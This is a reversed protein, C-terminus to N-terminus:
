AAASGRRTILGLDLREVAAKGRGVLQQEAELLVRQHGWAPSLRRM